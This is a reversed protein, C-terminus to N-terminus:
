KFTIKVSTLYATAGGNPTLFRARYQIWPGEIKKIKSGSRSFWGDGGGSGRWSANDLAEQTKGERVQFQVATGHPTEADWEIAVPRDGNAMRYASSIYDEYLGRDYSNGPDRVNLGSPGVANFKSCREPSFGDRGGWFLMSDTVHRHPVPRDTFGGERHNAVFIDLWGDGDYDLAEAGGSGNTPLETRPRQGFGEPGGWYILSPANGIIAGYSCLFIDLWGDRDFDAISNDYPTVASIIERRDNSFGDPSGYYIPTSKEFMNGAGRNPLLLDLWGDQNLDAGKIYMLTYPAGLDISSSSEHSYGEEGGWWIVVNSLDIDKGSNLIQAAIDLYGDRNLDMVLPVRVTSKEGIDLVQRNHHSFGIPSGWFITLGSKDGDQLDESHGGAVMDLYGDRNLDAIRFGGYAFVMYLNSTDNFGDAGGWKIIAGAQNHPMGSIFVRVALAMDVFGDDDLDAHGVGFIHHTTFESSRHLGFDRTGDGWYIHSPSSGDGLYGNVNFFVIDPKGDNNVDGIANAVTGETALQTHHSYRFTGGDNWYVYSLINYVNTAAQNSFVLEPLGDGNLDGASVGHAGLTPLALPERSTFDEGDSYYVFSDTWMAGEPNRQYSAVIVDDLGDGDCDAVAVDKPVPVEFAIAEKIRYGDDRGYLIRLTDTTCIAIDKFADQNIDGIAGAVFGIPLTVRREPDEFAGKTSYYIFTEAKTSIALDDIGDGDLDGAVVSAAYVDDEDDEGDNFTLGLRRDEAFGEPSNWYIFSTKPESLDLPDGAQWQCAIALDVWSDGNFDGAAISTAVFAPLETRNTPNFGEPTGYYIYSNVQNWHSNNRNSVALDNLGDKNFDHALGDSSGNGPLQILTRSDIDLGNNLYIYTNEKETYGHGAPLLIDLHGDGNLDWRNIMQIRGRASVYLNSGADLFTGDRFDEFSSETWSSAQGSTALVLLVATLLFHQNKGYSM